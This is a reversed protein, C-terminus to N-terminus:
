VLLIAREREKEREEIKKEKKETSLFFLHVRRMAIKVISASEYEFLSLYLSLLIIAL